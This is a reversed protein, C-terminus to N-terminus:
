QRRRVEVRIPKRKVVVRIPPRSTDPGSAMVYFGDRELARTFKPAETECILWADDDVKVWPQFSSPLNNGDPRVSLGIVGGGRDSIFAFLKMAGIHHGGVVPDLVM